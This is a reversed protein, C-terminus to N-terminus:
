KRLYIYKQENTNINLLKAKQSINLIINKQKENFYSPFSLVWKISNEHIYSKNILRLKLITEKKIYKLVISIIYILPYTTSNNLPCIKEQNLHLNKIFNKFYLKLGM